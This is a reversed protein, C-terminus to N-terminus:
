CVRTACAFLPPKLDSGQMSSKTNEILFPDLCYCINLQVKRVLSRHNEVGVSVVQGRRDLRVEM